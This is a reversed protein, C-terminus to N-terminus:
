FFHTLAQTPYVSAPLVAIFAAITRFRPCVGTRPAERLERRRRAFVANPAGGGRLRHSGRKRRADCRRANKERGRECPRDAAVAGVVFRRWSVSWDSSSPGIKKKRQTPFEVKTWRTQTAAAACLSLRPAYPPAQRSSLSTSKDWVLEKHATMRASLSKWEWYKGLTTHCVRLNPGPSRESNLM